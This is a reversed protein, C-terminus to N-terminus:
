KLSTSRTLRDHVTCGIVDVHRPSVGKRMMQNGVGHLQKKGRAVRTYKIWTFLLAWIFRSLNSRSVGRDNQYNASFIHLFLGNWAM